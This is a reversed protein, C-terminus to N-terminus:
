NRILTREEEAAALLSQPPKSESPVSEGGKTSSCLDAPIKRDRKSGKKRSSPRADDESSTTDSEEDSTGIPNNESDYLDKELREDGPSVAADSESGQRPSAKPLNALSGSSQSLMEDSLHRHAKDKDIVNGKETILRDSRAAAYPNVSLFRANVPSRSRGATSVKSDLSLGRPSIFRSTDRGRSQSLFANVDFGGMAVAKANKGQVAKSPPRNQTQSLADTSRINVDPSQREASAQDLEQSPTCPDSQTIQPATPTSAVSSSLWLPSSAPESLRIATSTRESPPTVGVGIGAISGPRAPLPGPTVDLMSRVPPQQLPNRNGRTTTTPPTDLLELVELREEEAAAEQSM